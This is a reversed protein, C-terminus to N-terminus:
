IFTPLRKEILAIIDDYIASATLKDANLRTKLAHAKELTKEFFNSINKKTQLPNLGYHEYSALFDKQKLKEYIDKGNILMAIRRSTIKQPYVETSLLDYFPALVIYGDKHLFSINKAHADANGILYNFTLWYLLSFADGVKNHSYQIVARYCDRMSPGGDAQYKKASPYGLAQCFDEQHIRKVGNPTIQRDYRAIDLYLRGDAERLCITSPAPLGIDHALTMCFLENHLLNKFRDNGIKIIQTSSFIDNPSFYHNGDGYLAFKFQAGALSLRPPDKMGTLLPNFPLEDIVFALEKESIKRLPDSIKEPLEGEHLAVAGACDGGIKELISFPNNVAIRMKNAILELPEGEPTLNEFFPYAFAHPYAEDRIPMRVTLPYKVGPEYRFSLQSYENETLVGTKEGCLYVNLKAMKKRM